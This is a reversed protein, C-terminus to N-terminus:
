AGSPRWHVCRTSHRRSSSRGAPRAAGIQAAHAVGSDHRRAARRLAGRGSKAWSGFPLLQHPQLRFRTEPLCPHCHSLIETMRCIRGTLRMVWWRTRSLDVGEPRKWSKGYHCATTCFRGPDRRSAVYLDPLPLVAHISPGRDPCNDRTYDKRVQWISLVTRDGERFASRFRPGAGMHGELGTLIGTKKPCCPHRTPKV